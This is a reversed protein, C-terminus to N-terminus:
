KEAKITQGAGHYSSALSLLIATENPHHISANELVHIAEEFREQSQYIEGLALFARSVFPTQETLQLTIKEAKREEGAKFFVQAQLLLTDYDDPLERVMQKTLEMADRLMGEEECEVFLNVLQKAVEYDWKNELSTHLIEIAERNMEVNEYFLAFRQAAMSNKPNLQLSIEYLDIITTIISIEKARNKMRYLARTFISKKPQENQQREIWRETVASAAYMFAMSREAKKVKLIHLFDRINSWKKHQEIAKVYVDFIRENNVDKQIVKMAIEIAKANRNKVLVKAYHYLVETHESDLRLAEEIQAQEKDIEDMAGYVYAIADLRWIEPVEDVLQELETLLEKQLNMEVSLQALYEMNIHLPEEKMAQVM